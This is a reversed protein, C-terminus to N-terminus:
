GQGQGGFQPRPRAKEGALTAPLSPSEFTDAGLRWSSEATGSLRLDPPEMPASAPCSLLVIGRRSRRLGLGLCSSAPGNEASMAENRSCRAASPFDAFVM